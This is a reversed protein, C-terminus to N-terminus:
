LADGIILHQIRVPPAPTVNERETDKLVFFTLSVRPGTYNIKDIRHRWLHQSSKSMTYLSGHRVLLSEEHGKEINKWIVTGDHGLSITYITSGSCIIDEDDSHEPMFSNAGQYRNVNCTTIRGCNPVTEKLVSVAEKIIDPFPEPDSKQKAGVYTYKQGYSIVDHGNESNFYEFNKYTNFIRDSLDSPLFNDSYKDFPTLEVTPDSSPLAESKNDTSLPM